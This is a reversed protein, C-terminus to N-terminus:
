TQANKYLKQAQDYIAQAARKKADELTILCPRGAESRLSIQREIFTHVGFTLTVLDPHYIEDCLFATIYGQEALTIIAQALEKMYDPVDDFIGSGILGAMIFGEYIPDLERPVPITSSPKRQPREAPSLYEDAHAELGYHTFLANIKSYDPYSNVEKAVSAAIKIYVRNPFEVRGGNKAAWQTYLKVAKEHVKDDFPAIRIAGAQSLNLLDAAKQGNRQLFEYTM